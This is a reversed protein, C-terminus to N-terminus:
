ATHRTYATLLLYLLLCSAYVCVFKPSQSRKCKVVYQCMRQQNGLDHSYFWMPTTILKFWGKDQIAGQLAPVTVASM